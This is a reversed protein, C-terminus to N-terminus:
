TTSPASRPRRPPPDTAFQWNFVFDDATFPTGDHWTVGRKLKWIVSRGDAAVGGNERSPFRRALIPQLVGDADFRALADYFVQAGLEDKTGTAFHPNLLTPAQWLLVKLLGGGGRRTPKYPPASSPQAVGADALLLWAMPASIGLAALREVFRRRPLAGRRVL